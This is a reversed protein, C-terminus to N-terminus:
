IFAWSTLLLEQEVVATRGPQPHWTVAVVVKRTDADVESVTVTRLYDGNQDSTGSFIWMVPSSGIALGHTGISLDTWSRDAISITAQIGEEAASLAQAHRSMEEVNRETSSMLGATSTMMIVMVASAFVLEIM